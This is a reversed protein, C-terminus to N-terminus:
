LNEIGLATIYENQMRAKFSERLRDHEMDNKVPHYLHTRQIQSPEFRSAWTIHKLEDIVGVKLNERLCITNFFVEDMFLSGYVEAHEHIKKLLKRSCRMVCIMSSALPLDFPCYKDVYNSWYWDNIHKTDQPNRNIFNSSCILDYGEDVYKRDIMEFAYPNPIFVDDEVFWIKDHSDDIVNYHYLAKDRSYASGGSWSVTARYGAAEAVEKSIKIEPVVGDYYPVEYNCDDVVISVEEGTTQAIHKASGYARKSPRHSLFCIMLVEYTSSM